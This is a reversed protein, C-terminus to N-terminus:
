HSSPLDDTSLKGSRLGKNYFRVFHRSWNGRGSQTIISEFNLEIAHFLRDISFGELRRLDIISLLVAKSVFAPNLKGYEKLKTLIDKKEQTMEFVYSGSTIISTHAGEAPSLFACISTLKHPKFQEAAEQLKIYNENGGTAYFHIWDNMRWQVQHANMEAIDEISMNKKIYSIKQPSSATKNILRIAELRHQGDLIVNGTTVTIPTKLGVRMISEALKKVASRNVRRNREHFTFQDLNTTTKVSM